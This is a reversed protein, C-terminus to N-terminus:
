IEKLRKLILKKDKDPLKQTKKRIAHVLYIADGVKVFYFVRFINGTDRFRLEHLGITLNSLPKSLPMSLREGQRLRDLAILFDEQVSVPM